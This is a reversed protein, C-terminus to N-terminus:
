IPNCIADPISVQEGPRPEYRLEAVCTGGDIQEVTIRNDAILGEVLAQGDYGIMFQLTEGRVQGTAGMEIHNGDPGRFTVLAAKAATDVGFSVVVGSRNAPVVIERTNNVVADLPLNTPDISIRNNENSRLRPLLLKGDRDTHGAPRNEYQVEVGPAGADVIAFADDIRTSTFLGGGAAVVAGEMSASARYSDDQRDIRAALRAFPARYSGAASSVAKEAQTHRVRWGYDGAQQGESRIFDTTAAVGNPSSSVAASSSYDKGLPVTLGAYIGHNKGDLDSFGSVSVTSDGFFSRSFSLGVVSQREGEAKEMQTFSVNLFSPDFVLPVSVSVQDLAKPTDSRPYADGPLRESTISAIDQYNGFTRQMRGHFRLEWLNLEASGAMQFGAEGNSYSNAGSLSAVGFSGIGFIAGGGANILDEGGEAHGELTLWNTLGYRISGSGFPREDYVNSERGFFKRAFGIEGSFDLLGPALLRNSAFFSSETAVEHGQADRVVVRATGAGTVIPLNIIQFPGAPVEESFRRTNNLYVDLTSPVAASGSLDPIAITVLDSRLSFNRQVQIGGLRTPRTWELGGTVYDGLRYTTMSQADSYSWTTDLRTSDFRSEHPASALFTQSLVGYPSFFRTEFSGSIGGFALSTDSNSNHASTFLSYNLLAGYASKPNAREVPDTPSAGRAAADIIRAARGEDASTFAITQNLEDYQFSVGPLLDIQILGDPRRAERAPAIGVNRLQETEITLTGDPDERFAAVLNSSVGNVTVELFLERGGPVGGGNQATQSDVQAHASLPAMVAVLWVLALVRCAHGAGPASSLSICPYLIGSWCM